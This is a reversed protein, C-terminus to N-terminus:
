NPMKASSAMNRSIYGYEIILGIQKTFGLWTYYSCLKKPM